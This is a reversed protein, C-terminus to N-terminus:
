GPCTEVQCLCKIQLNGSKGMRVAQARLMIATRAIALHKNQQHVPFLFNRGSQNDVALVASAPDGEWTGEAFMGVLM